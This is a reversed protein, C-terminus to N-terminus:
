QRSHKNYWTKLVWEVMKEEKASPKADGKENHEYGKHTHPLEPKGDIMHPKGRIDIQKFKKNGKDYYSIYRPEGDSGITVYVCGKTMTELPAKVQGDTPVLFKINGARYVSKYESGYPLYTGDKLTRGGSSAGRGGM